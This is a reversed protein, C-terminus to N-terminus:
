DLYLLENCSLVVRAYASWSAFDCLSAPVGSNEAAYAALFTRASEAEAGTPERQLCLRYAFALRTDDPQALLRKAFSEARAHLFPDNLFWLAQTPVTSASM